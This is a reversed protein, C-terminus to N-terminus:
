FPRSLGIFCCIDEAMSMPMWSVSNMWSIHWGRKSEKPHAVKWEAVTKDFPEDVKGEVTIAILEERGGALVFLDNQSAARGGPLAVKFEPSAALLHLDSFVNFGSDQFVKLVSPPFGDCSSWCYALAKASRGTKWHSPRAVFPKWAEADRAPAFVKGM